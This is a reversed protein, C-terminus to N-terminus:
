TIRTGDGDRVLDGHMAVLHTHVRQLSAPRYPRFGETKADAIWRDHVSAHVEDLASPGERDLPRMRMVANLAGTPPKSTNRLPGMPNQSAKIRALAPADFALGAERAGEIIWELGICSLDIIDGGGGVSGHDGAFFQELYPTGAGSEAEANLEALNDWRTPAFARRREDLAVAHRASQVMSSLNADHFRYKSATWRGLVAVSAPVGLAGVSDWVGLYRIRLIPADPMGQSLRWAHEAESTVVRRSIGARFAHSEETAPHTTDDDMTRYRAVAKPIEPMADRDIIGTSRIFGTLSRATYAGRSFGLIFIEDGPEYLFVLHRYAEVINSMLGLGFAGGLLSDMKRLWPTPGRGTGVGQVYIPVQVTGAEDKLRMAQSFRVVNTPTISDSRNWTGDCLIVIRKM